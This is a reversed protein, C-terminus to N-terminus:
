RGIEALWPAAPLVAVPSSGVGWDQGCLGDGAQKCPPHLIFWISSKGSSVRSKPPLPLVGCFQYLLWSAAGAAGSIMCIARPELPRAGGELGSLNGLPGQQWGFLSEPGLSLLVLDFAPFPVTAQHFSAPLVTTLCGQPYGHVLSSLKELWSTPEEAMKAQVGPPPVCGVQSTPWHSLVDLPAVDM